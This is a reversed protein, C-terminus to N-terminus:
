TDLSKDSHEVVLHDSAVSVDTIGVLLKIDWLKRRTFTQLSWPITVKDEDSTEGFWLDILCVGQGGWSLKIFLRLSRNWISAVRRDNAAGGNAGMKAADRYRIKTGVFAPDAEAVTGDVIFESSHTLTWSNSVEWPDVVLHVTGDQTDFFHLVGVLGTNEEIDSSFKNIRLEKQWKM